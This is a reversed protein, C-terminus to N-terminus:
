HRSINSVRRCHLPTRTRRVKGIWASCIVPVVFGALGAAVNQATKWGREDALEQIKINNGEIEARIMTCDAYVDQPQVSAVPAPDRGACASLALSVAMTSFVKSRLAVGGRLFAANTV